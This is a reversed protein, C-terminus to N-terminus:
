KIIKSDHFVSRFSAYWWIGISSQALFVRCNILHIFSCTSLLTYFSAVYTTDFEMYANTGMVM